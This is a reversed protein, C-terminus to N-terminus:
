QRPTLSDQQWTGDEDYTVSGFPSPTVVHTSWVNRVPMLTDKAFWVETVSEGQRGASFTRNWRLHYAPVDTEGIVVTEEGLYTAPGQQYSIDKGEGSSCAQDWSDGPAMGEILDQAPPDCVTVSKSDYGVAGFSFQQSVEGGLDLLRGDDTCYHWSQWHVSHFDIRFWWCRDGDRTITVPMSPGMDRGGAQLSLKEHGSGSFQYVGAVPGTAEGTATPETTGSRYREVVDNVDAEHAPTGRFTFWAGAGVAVGLGVVVAAAILWRRRHRRDSRTLVDVVVLRRRPGPM